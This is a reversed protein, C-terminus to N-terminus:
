FQEYRQVSYTTFVSGKILLKANGNTLNQM